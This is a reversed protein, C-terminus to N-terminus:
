YVDGYQADVEPWYLDKFVVSGDRYFTVGSASDLVDLSVGDGSFMPMLRARGDPLGSAAYLDSDLASKLDAVLHALRAVSLDGTGAMAVEFGYKAQGDEAWNLDDYTFLDFTVPYDSLVSGSISAAADLVAQAEDASLPQVEPAKACAALCLILVAALVIAILKKM